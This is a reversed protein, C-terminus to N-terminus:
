ERIWGGEKQMMLVDSDTARGETFVLMANSECIYKVGSVTVVTGHEKLQIMMGKCPPFPMETEIRFDRGKGCERFIIVRM